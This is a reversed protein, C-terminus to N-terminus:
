MSLLLTLRLRIFNLCHTRGPGDPNRSRRAAIVVRYGPKAVMGSSRTSIVAIPYYPAPGKAYGSYWRDQKEEMHASPVITRMRGVPESPVPAPTIRPTRSGLYVYPDWAHLYGSISILADPYNVLDTVFRDGDAFKAERYRSHM